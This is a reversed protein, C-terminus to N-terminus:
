RGIGHLQEFVAHAQDVRAEHPTLADLRVQVRGTRLVVVVRHGTQASEVVAVGMRSAGPVRAFGLAEAAELLRPADDPARLDCRWLLNARCGSDPGFGEALLGTV